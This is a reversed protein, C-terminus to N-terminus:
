VTNKHATNLIIGSGRSKFLVNDASVCSALLEGMDRIPFTNPFRVSDKLAVTRLRVKLTRESLLGSLFFASQSLLLPRETCPSDGRARSPQPCSLRALLQVFFM